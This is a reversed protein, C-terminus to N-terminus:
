MSHGLFGMFIMRENLLRLNVLSKCTEYSRLYQLINAEKAQIFKLALFVKYFIFRYVFLFLAFTVYLLAGCGIITQLKGAM